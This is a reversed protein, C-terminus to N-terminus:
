LISRSGAYRTTRAPTAFVCWIGFGNGPIVTRSFTAVAVVGRVWSKTRM